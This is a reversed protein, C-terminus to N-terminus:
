RLVELSRASGGGTKGKGKQSKSGHSRLSFLAIRLARVFFHVEEILLTM